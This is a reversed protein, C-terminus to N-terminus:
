GLLFSLILEFSQVEARRVRGVVSWPKVKAIKEDAAIRPCRQLGVRSRERLCHIKRPHSRHPCVENPVSNMGDYCDNQNQYFKNELAGKLILTM